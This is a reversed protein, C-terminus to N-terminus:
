VPVHEYCYIKLQSRAITNSYKWQYALHELEFTLKKKLIRDIEPTEEM